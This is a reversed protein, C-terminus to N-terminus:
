DARISALVLEAIDVVKIKRKAEKRIKKLAAGLTRECQQCASVLIDVDADLIERARSEAIKSSLASDLSELNGGGGCCNALNKNAELEVFEVGPISEIVKLRVATVLIQSRKKRGFM